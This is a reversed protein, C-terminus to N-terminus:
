STEGLLLDCAIFADPDNEDVRKTNLPELDNYGWLTIEYAPVSEGAKLRDAIAKRIFYNSVKTKDTM